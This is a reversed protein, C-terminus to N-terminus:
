RRRREKTTPFLDFPSRIIVSDLPPPQRASTSRV